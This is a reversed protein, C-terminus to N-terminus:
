DAAVMLSAVVNALDAPMDTTASEGYTCVLTYGTSQCRLHGYGTPSTVVATRVYGAPMEAVENTVVESAPDVSLVGQVMAETLGTSNDGILDSSRLVSVVVAGTPSLVAYQNGDGFGFAGQMPLTERVPSGPLVFSAAGDTVRTAGTAPDLQEIVPPFMTPNGATAAEPPVARAVTLPPADISASSSDDTKMVRVVGFVVGSVVCAAVFLGLVRKLGGSKRRQRSPPASTALAQVFPNAPQLPVATPREAPPRAVLSPASPLFPVAPATAAAGPPPLTATPGGTPPPLVAPESNM